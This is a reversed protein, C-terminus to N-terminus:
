PSRSTPQDVRLRALARVSRQNLYFASIVLLGLELPDGEGVYYRALHGILELGVILLTLTWGWKTLSLLGIVGIITALALAVNLGRTLPVDAGILPVGSVPSGSIGLGVLLLGIADLTRLVVVVIVGTPWRRRTPTIDVADSVRRHYLRIANRNTGGRAVM